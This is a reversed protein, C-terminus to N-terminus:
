KLEAVITEVSGDEYTIVAKNIGKEVSYEVSSYKESGNLLSEGGVPNIFYMPFIPIEGVTNGDKYWDAPEYGSTTSYYLAVKDGLQASPLTCSIDFVYYYAGANIYKSPSTGMAYKFNGQWDCQTFRFTGTYKESTPNYILGANMKFSNGVGLTGSSVSLGYYEHGKHTGAKLYITTPVEPEPEPEVPTPVFSRDPEFDIVVDNWTSFEWEERYSPTDYETGVYPFLDDVDFFSNWEGGWGWNVYVYGAANYGSILFQHGGKEDKTCAGYLVPLGKDIQGKILQFWDGSYDRRMIYSAGSKYYMYEHALEPLEDVYGGTGNASYQLQMMLGVDAMLRAVQRNQEDSYNSGTLHDLPMLDWKYEYGLTRGPISVKKGNYSMQYGPLTGKGCPPWEHYRMVISIATAVCGTISKETEYPSIIPCYYNYPDEQSWEATELVVDGEDSPLAPNDWRLAKERTQPIGHKRAISLITSIERLRAQLNEPMAKGNVRATRSYGLIPNMIDDGAVIVFGKDKGTFVYWDAETSVMPAIAPRSDAALRMSSPAVGLQKAALNRAKDASVPSAQAASAALLLFATLAFIKKM